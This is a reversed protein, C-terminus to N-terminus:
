EAVRATWDRVWALRSRCDAGAAALDAIFAATSQDTVENPVRPEAKCTLREVPPAKVVVRQKSSACGSLCAACLLATMACRKM